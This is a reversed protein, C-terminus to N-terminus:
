PIKLSYLALQHSLSAYKFSQLIATLKTQFLHWNWSKRQWSAKWTPWKMKWKRSKRNGNKLSWSRKWHSPLMKRSSLSPIKPAIRIANWWCKPWVTSFVPKPWIFVFNRRPFTLPSFNFLFINSNTTYICRFCSLKISLVLLSSIRRDSVVLTKHCSLM